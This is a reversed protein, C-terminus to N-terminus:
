DGLRRRRRMATGAVGLLGAAWLETTAPEPVEVTRTFFGYGNDTCAAAADFPCTTAPFVVANLELGNASLGGVNMWVVSRYFEYTGPAVPNGGTPTFTGSLYTMSAGSPLSFATGPPPFPNPAFGFDYPPGNTCSTTFTGSCGFGITLSFM